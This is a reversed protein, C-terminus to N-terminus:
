FRGFLFCSIFSFLFIVIKGKPKTWSKVKTHPNYWYPEGFHPCYQVLVRQAKRAVRFRHLFMRVLSQVKAVQEFLRLELRQTERRAHKVAVIKKALHRRMVSQIRTVFLGVRGFSEAELWELIQTMWEEHRLSAFSNLLLALRYDPEAGFFLEHHSCQLKARPLHHVRRQGAHKFQQVSSHMRERHAQSVHHAGHESPPSGPRPAASEQTSQSAMMAPTDQDAAAENLDKKAYHAEAVLKLCELFDAYSLMNGQETKARNFLIDVQNAKLKRQVEPLLIRGADYEQFLSLKTAIPFKKSKKTKAKKDTGELVGQVKHLYRILTISDAKNTFLTNVDTRGKSCAALTFLAQVPGLCVCTLGSFAHTKHGAFVVHPFFNLSM